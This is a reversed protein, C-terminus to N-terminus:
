PVWIEMLIAVKELNKEKKSSNYSFCINVDSSFPEGIEGVSQQM